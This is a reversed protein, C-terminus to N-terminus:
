QRQKHATPVGYAPRIASRTTLRVLVICLRSPTPVAAAATQCRQKHAEREGSWKGLCCKVRQQWDERWDCAERETERHTENRRNNDATSNNLQKASSHHPSNTSVPEQSKHLRTDVWYSKTVQQSQHSHRMVVGVVELELSKYNQRSTANIVRRKLSRDVPESTAHRWPGCDVQVTSAITAPLGRM